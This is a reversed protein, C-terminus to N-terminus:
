KGDNNKKGKNGTNINSDNVNNNDNIDLMRYMQNPYNNSNNNIISNSLISSGDRYMLSYKSDNKMNIKRLMNKENILKENERLLQENRRELSILKDNLENYKNTLNDKEINWKAKEKELELLLSGRKGEAERLSKEIDSIRKKLVEKDKDTSSMLDAFKNDYENKIAEERQKLKEKEKNIEDLKKTLDGPNFNKNKTM